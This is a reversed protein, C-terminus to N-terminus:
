EGIQCWLVYNYVSDSHLNLFVILYQLAALNVASIPFQLPIM